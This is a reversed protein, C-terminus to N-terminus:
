GQELPQVYPALIGRISSPIRTPRGSTNIAAIRVRLRVLLEDDRWIAQLVSLTAGAMAVFCSRVELLDDLRAPRLFELSCDRVAFVLDHSDRLLSQHLDLLRLCETRAREAFNLYHAHYVVGGADTDEYFIRIPYRHERDVFRGSTLSM